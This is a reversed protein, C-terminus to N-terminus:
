RHPYTHIHLFSNLIIVATISDKGQHSPGPGNPANDVTFIDATIYLPQLPNIVDDTHQWLLSIAHLAKATQETWFSEFTMCVSLFKCHPTDKPAENKEPLSPPVQSLSATHLAM